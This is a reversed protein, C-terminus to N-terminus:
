AELLGDIVEVLLAVDGSLGQELPQKTLRLYPSGHSRHEKHHQQAKSEKGHQITVAIGKCCHCVGAGKLDPNSISRGVVNRSDIHGNTVDFHISALDFIHLASLAGAVIAYAGDSTVFVRCMTRGSLSLCPTVPKGIRRDWIRATGDRGVTLLWRGDPSFAADFVEDDHELAPCALEGTRWNWLRTM